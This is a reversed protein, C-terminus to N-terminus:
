APEGQAPGADAPGTIAAGVASAVLIAIVIRWGSPVTPVTLSIGWAVLAGAAAVLGNVWSKKVGPLLIAVFMAYLAVGMARAIVPPILSSFGAGILTGSLWALYATVSLGLFFPPTLDAALSAVVFTEDTVGFGLGLPASFSRFGRGRELPLRRSLAVSMLFHRFNLVLTALVIAAASAGGALLGLSAFQSAGAYVFLSMAAAQAFSLGTQAALVGFAIAMPVYGVAVPIGARAGRMLEMGPTREMLSADYGHFAGTELPARRSFSGAAPEDHRHLRARGGCM